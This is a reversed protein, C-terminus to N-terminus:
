FAINWYFTEENEDSYISISLTSLETPEAQCVIFSLQYGDFVLHWKLKNCSLQFMKGIEIM